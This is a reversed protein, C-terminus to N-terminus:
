DHNRRSKKGLAAMIEEAVRQGLLDYGKGNFHCDKPNQCEAQHPKIFTYLDDTPINHKKMVKAAIENRQVINRDDMDKGEPPLPTTSAWILKAKTAKLREVITELRKEYEEPSTKCDHIGFNFHVVDWKGDGLWIDLKKLANATGGCNEPARHVNVKGALAHRVALTYGRSISDGILLIRPLKPNDKVYDWASEAGKEKEKKYLPLYFSGLNEELLNEWAAQEPSMPKTDKRPAATKAGKAKAADAEKQNTPEGSFGFPAALVCYFCLCLGLLATRLYSM